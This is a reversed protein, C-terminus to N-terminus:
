IMDDTERELQWGQLRNFITSASQPSSVMPMTSSTHSTAGSVFEQWRCLLIIMVMVIAVMCRSPSQINLNTCKSNHILEFVLATM